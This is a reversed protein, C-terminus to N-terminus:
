LLEDNSVCYISVPFTYQVFLLLIEYFNYFSPNM